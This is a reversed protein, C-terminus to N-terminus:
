TIALLSIEIASLSSNSHESSQISDLLVSSSQPPRWNSPKVTHSDHLVLPIVTRLSLLLWSVSIGSRDLNMLRCCSSRDYLRIVCSGSVASSPRNSSLLRLMSIFLPRMRDSCETVELTNPPFKPLSLVKLDAM